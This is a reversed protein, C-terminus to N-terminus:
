DQLITLLWLSCIVCIYNLVSAQNITICRAKAGSSPSKRPCSKSATPSQFHDYHVPSISQAPGGYMTRRHSSHRQARFLAGSRGRVGIRAVFTRGDGGHGRQPGRNACVFGVASGSCAGREGMACEGCPAARSDASAGDARRQLVHPPTNIMFTGFSLHIDKNPADAASVPIHASFLPATFRVSAGYIEADLNLLEQDSRLKQTALVAVRLKWNIEGDLQDMRIFCAGSTNSTRLLVLDARVRRDKEILVFDGVRLCSSPVARTPLLNGGLLGHSLDDDDLSSSSRSTLVLYRASNAEYDRLNCKDDDYAEKGM